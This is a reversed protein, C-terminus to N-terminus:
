AGWTLTTVSDAPLCAEAERGSKAVIRLNGCATLSWARGRVIQVPGRCLFGARGGTGSGLTSFRAVIILAVVTAFAPTAM